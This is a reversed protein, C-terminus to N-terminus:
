WFKRCLRGVVSVRVFQLFRRWFPVGDLYIQSEMLQIQYPDFLSLLYRIRVRSSAPYWQTFRNLLFPGYAWTKDPNWHVGTGLPNRNPDFLVIEGSWSMLSAAVRAVIAGRACRSPNADNPGKALSYLLIWRQPGSLWALSVATYGPPLSPFLQVADDELPSWRFQHGRESPSAGAYFLMQARDPFRGRELPMWALHMSEPYGGHGIMVLGDGTQAPLGPHDANQVVAPAVQWFKTSSFKFHLAFAVPQDPRNSSTLYSVPATGGAVVFVYARDDYSFAGTPTENTGLVGLREVTFPHYVSKLGHAPPEARVLDSVVRLSFGGSRIATADSYAVLDGDWPPSLDPDRVYEKLTVDGSFIFLRGPDRPSAKHDTNAGLDVGHAGWQDLPNLTCPGTLQALRFTSGSVHSASVNAPTPEFVSAAHQGAATAPVDPAIVRSWSIRAPGQWTGTGVVWCIHPRGDIAAFVVVTLDDAQKAATVAAGPPAFGPPTLKHPGSWHRDDQGRWFLHLAGDWGVVFANILWDTQDIAAVLAGPPATNNASVAEPAQWPERGVVRTVTLTGADDVFFVWWRDGRLCAAAMGAGPPTHPQVSHIPAPGSWAAAGTERWCVHVHRSPKASFMASVLGPAQQIAVVNGGAEAFGDVSPTLRQLNKWVDGGEVTVSHLNGNDDAFVVFWKNPGQGAIALSAGRPATPHAALSPAPGGWKDQGRGRWQAYLQRTDPEVYLVTLQDPGQKFAAVSTGSPWIAKTNPNVPFSGVWSATGAVANHLEGTHAIFLANLPEDPAHDSQFRVLAIKPGFQIMPLRSDIASRDGDVGRVV